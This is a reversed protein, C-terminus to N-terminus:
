FISDILNEFFGGVCESTDKSCAEIWKKKKKFEEGSAIMDEMESRLYYELEDLDIGHEVWLEALEPLESFIEGFADFLGLYTGSGAKVRKCPPFTDGGCLDPNDQALVGADTLNAPSNSWLRLAGATSFVAGENFMAQEHGTFVADQAVDRFFGVVPVRAEPIEYPNLIVNVNENRNYEEDASNTAFAQRFMEAHVVTLSRYITQNTWFLQYIAAVFIVIIWTLLMTETTAQGREGRHRGHGM